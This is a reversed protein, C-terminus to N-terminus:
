KGPGCAGSEEEILDWVTKGQKRAAEIDEDVRGHCPTPPNIRPAIKQEAETSGEKIAKAPKTDLLRETRQVLEFFKEKHIPWAGLSAGIACLLRNAESCPDIPGRGRREKVIEHMLVLSDRSYKM